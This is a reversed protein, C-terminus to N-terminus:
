SRSSRRRRRSGKQECCTRRQLRMKRLRFDDWKQRRCSAFTEFTANLYACLSQTLVRFMTIKHKESSPAAGSYTSSWNKRQDLTQAASAKQGYCARCLEYTKIIVLPKACVIDPRLLKWDTNHTYSATIQELCLLMHCHMCQRDSVTQFLPHPLVVHIHQSHAAKGWQQYRSCHTCFTGPSPGRLCFQVALFISLLVGVTVSGALSSSSSNKKLPKQSEDVIKEATQEAQEEATVEPESNGNDAASAESADGDEQAASAQDPASAKPAAQESVDKNADAKIAKADDSVEVVQEKTDKAAKQKAIAKKDAAAAKGNAAGRRTKATM